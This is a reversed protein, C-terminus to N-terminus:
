IEQGVLTYGYVGREYFSHLHQFCIWLAKGGASFVIMLFVCIHKLWQQTSKTM